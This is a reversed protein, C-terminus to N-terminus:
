FNLSITFLWSKTSPNTFYETGFGNNVGSQNVEPDFGVIDTWLALNRGSISFRMSSFKTARKFGPSSLTYGLSVERLRTWSADGIFFERIASSGLGAGRSTYWAEDLLVNGGGYNGINGRIVTGVPFTVGNVNKLAETLTIEKSVDEHTGFNYLVAKTGQSIDGGQFTEFLINFDIGKYSASVGAGGRWDPNPDGIVGQSLDIQPFGNGDLIYDGKTDRLARPGWLVGLPYGEVARSSVSQTTLDVTGTGSLSLVKNRNRNFNSYLQINLDKKKIIDYKLDVEFGKNEMTAANTYQSTFGSSPPLGVNLLIDEIKNSYYSLGLSIRNDWFRLDAGIEWETKIEPRLDNNGKVNDLSFGGGFNTLALGDDYANYVPTEYTTVFNYPLPQVGVKGWAARIKGFSLVKSNQLSSLKTFQWAADASPYFFAESITSAAEIAGGINVFLQDNVDLGITSYGRNSSVHRMSNIVGTNAASTVLFNQLSLDDVFANAEGYLIERQRDNFNVGLIFTGKLKDNFDKTARGLLDMNKEVESIRENRYSGGSREGASGVPFFYIRKDYSADIGGRLIFELWPLPNSSVESSILFRDVKSTANQRFITWYPNNYTPQVNDGRYRRYSRQRNRYEIGNADFYSGIYDINDFDPATRLLGLYLGATNSNNQIRDSSVNIYAAKNSFKLFKGFNHDSNLRISNRKYDSNAKIIGQQDLNELSLFFRSKDTGGSM